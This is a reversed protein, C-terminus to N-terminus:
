VYTYDDRSIGQDMMQQQLSISRCGINPFTPSAIQRQPVRLPSSSTGFIHNM